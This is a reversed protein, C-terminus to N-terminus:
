GPVESAHILGRRRWGVKALWTQARAVGTKLRAAPPSCVNKWGDFAYASSCPDLWRPDYRWGAKAGHRRANNLVYALARRVETPTTLARAHYRDPFVRGRRGLHQNLRRAIRVQLGKLGRSLARRDDAEVILHLHNTMVSYHVLRFGFRSRAATLARQV